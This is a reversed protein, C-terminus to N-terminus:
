VRIAINKKYLFLLFLWLLAIEAFATAFPATAGLLLAVDGGTLMLAIGNLPILRLIMFAMLLNRGVVVFPFLLRKWQLVEGIYYCCALLVSGIGATVMVYSSTWLPKNIPFVMDWMAGINIAILGGAFLWVVKEGPRKNSLLLDGWLLGVIASGIAPLTSLIGEPDWSGYYLRGPIIKSDLWAALNNGFSYDGAVGGPVPVLAMIGWYALLLAALLFCRQKVGTYVYILSVILYCIAMRQLIGCLRINPWAESFGGNYLFGLLFLAASRRIIKSYLEGRQSSDNRLRKLSLRASLGLLM